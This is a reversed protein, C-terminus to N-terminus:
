FIRGVLDMTVYLSIPILNNFGIIFTFFSYFNSTPIVSDSELAVDADNKEVFNFVSTINHLYDREIRTINNVGSSVTCAVAAVILVFFRYVRM